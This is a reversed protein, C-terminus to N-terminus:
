RRVGPIDAAHWTGLHRVPWHLAICLLPLYSLYTDDILYTQPSNDLWQSATAANTGNIQMSPARARAHGRSRFLWPM